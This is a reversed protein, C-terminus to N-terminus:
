GIVTVSIKEEEVKQDDVFKRLTLTSFGAAKAQIEWNQWTIPRTDKSSKIGKYHVDIFPDNKATTELTWRTSETGSNLYKIYPENKKNNLNIRIDRPTNRNRKDATNENVVVIESDKKETALCCKLFCAAHIYDIPLLLILLTIQVFHKM